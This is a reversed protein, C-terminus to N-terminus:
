AFSKCESELGRPVKVKKPQTEQVLKPGQLRSFESASKLENLSEVLSVLFRVNAIKSPQFYSCHIAPEWCTTDEYILIQM